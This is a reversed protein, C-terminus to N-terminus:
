PCLALHTDCQVQVSGPPSRHYSSIGDGSDTLTWVVVVLVVMVVVWFCTQLFDRMKNEKTHKENM